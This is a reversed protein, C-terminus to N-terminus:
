RGKPIPIGPRPPIAVVMSWVEMENAVGQDALRDTAQTGIFQAAALGPGPKESFVFGIAFGKPAFRKGLGVYFICKMAIQDIPLGICHIRDLLAAFRRDM